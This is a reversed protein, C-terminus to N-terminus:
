HVLMSRQGFFAVVDLCDLRTEDCHIVEDGGLKWVVVQGGGRGV